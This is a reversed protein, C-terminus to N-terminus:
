GTVDGTPYAAADSVGGGGVGVGVGRETKYGAM